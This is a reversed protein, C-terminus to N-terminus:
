KLAGALLNRVSDGGVKGVADLVTPTFKTATEPAIGLKSFASNLGASNKLPGTVAGLKKAADLYKQAGPVVQAIKDFDGKALHEQALTLISGLGGQAQNDTVGLTSKLAGVIPDSSSLLSKLSDLSQGHALAPLAALTGLIWRRNM